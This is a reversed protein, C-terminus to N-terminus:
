SPVKVTKLMNIFRPILPNNSESQYYLCMPIECGDDDVPVTRLYSRDMHRVGYPVLAVGGARKITLGITDVQQTFVPEKPYIGRSALLDDFFRRYLSVHGEGALVIFREGRLDELKLSASGALPHDESMMVGVREKAFPVRRVSEDVDGLKICVAVDSQSMMMQELGEQPQCSIIEVNCAPFRDAFAMVLPETFDETWYYPSSITLTLHKGANQLYLQQQTNQYLNVMRRFAREVLQGEETLEVNRTTRAFLKAGMEEEIVAIHRSLAPQTIFVSEAAKSFNRTEALALFEYLYELKM